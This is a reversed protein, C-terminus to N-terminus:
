QAHCAPEHFPWGQVPQELGRTGHLSHLKMWLGDDGAIAELNHFVEDQAHM